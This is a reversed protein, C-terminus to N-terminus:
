KLSVALLEISPYGLVSGHQMIVTVSRTGSAGADQRQQAGSRRAAECRREFGAPSERLTPRLLMGNGAM